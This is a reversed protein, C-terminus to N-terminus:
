KLNQVNGMLYRNYSSIGWALIIGIGAFITPNNFGTENIFSTSIYAILWAFIPASVVRTHVKGIYFASKVIGILLLVFGTLGFIGFQVLWNLPTSHPGFVGNTYKRYDGDIEGLFFFNPINKIYALWINTRAEEEINVGGEFRVMLNNVVDEFSFWFVIIAIIGVTIFSIYQKLKRAIILYVIISSVISVLLARSLGAIGSFALTLFMFIPLAKKVKQKELTSLAILLWGISLFAIVGSNWFAGTFEYSGIKNVRFGIYEPYFLLPILASLLLGLGFAWISQKILKISTLRNILIFLILILSIFDISYIFYDGGPLISTPYQIFILFIRLFIAFCLIVWNFFFKKKIYIRQQIIEILVIISAILLILLSFYTLVQTLSSYGMLNLYDRSNLVGILFLFFLILNQSNFIISKRNDYRKM